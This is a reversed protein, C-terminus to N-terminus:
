REDAERVPLAVKQAFSKQSALYVAAVYEFLQITESNLSHNSVSM